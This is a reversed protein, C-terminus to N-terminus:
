SWSAPIVGMRGRQFDEMAQVIEEKTNMVFPGYHVVPERIPRGGLLLLEVTQTASTQTEKSRLSIADGSNFDVLQHSRFPVMENGAWGEGALVYVLANYSSEWELKLQSGPYMTVHAYAIPTHTSGAGQYGGIKGAILRLLSTGDQNTLLTLSSREIAQYRPTSLKLTRPLNVWLQVGHSLGGKSLIKESPLEDHLIGSGATMWQTDGERIIGGGGNSDRHVMEGDTLYTVTEFGRHPHWPAGKAQRPEYTVPGMQDLFIFPDTRKITSGFFGRWVEFGAGEVGHPATSVQFVSRFQKDSKPEPIRPLHLLNDASASPM